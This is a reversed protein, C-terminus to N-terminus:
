RPADPYSALADLSRRRHGPGHNPEYIITPLELGWARGAHSQELIWFALMSLRSETDHNATDAWRLFIPHVGQGQFHKSHLDGTRAYAKWAITHRPSGPRYRTFGAFDENGLRTGALTDGSETNWPLDAQQPQPWVHIPPPELLWTWSRFLGFPEQCALTLGPLRFIGRRRTPISLIVSSRSHATVTISSSEWHEWALYLGRRPRPAENSVSIGVRSAHGAFASESFAYDVVLSALNRYCHFMSAILVATLSFTLLFALNSGYNIAAVFLILNLLAASLGLRTPLIYVIRPRLRYPWHEGATRKTAWKYVRHHLRNQAAALPSRLWSFM